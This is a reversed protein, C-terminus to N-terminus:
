IQLFSLGITTIYPMFASHTVFNEYHQTGPYSREFSGSSQPGGSPNDGFVGFIKEPVRLSPEFDGIITSGSREFTASTNRTTSRRSRRSRSSM